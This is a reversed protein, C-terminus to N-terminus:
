ASSKAETPPLLALTSAQASKCPINFTDVVADLSALWSAMQKSGVSPDGTEHVDGVDHAAFMTDLMGMRASCMSYFCLDYGWGFTNLSPNIIAWFCNWGTLDFATLQIEIFNVLRGYLMHREETQRPGQENMSQWVSGVVVPSASRLNNASMFRFLHLPNFSLPEVSCLAAFSYSFPPKVVESQEECYRIDESHWVFGSYNSRAIFMPSGLSSLALRERGAPGGGAGRRTPAAEAACKISKWYTFVMGAQKILQCHPAFNLTETDVEPKYLFVICDFHLPHYLRSFAAM